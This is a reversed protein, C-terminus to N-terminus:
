IGSILEGLADLVRDIQKFSHAATVVMRFFGDEPGGPYFNYPVLIDRELLQQHIRENFKRDGLVFIAIPTPGDEFDIGLARLGSKMRATNKRLSSRLEPNKCVIDISAMAAGAFAPPLPTAGVYAPSGSRILQSIPADGAVFGGFCGFAKSLTGTQYVGEAEVGLYELTGKGTEGLVGVGHADDMMVAGGCSLAAERYEAMPALAGSSYVGDTCVVPKEGSACHQRLKAALDEASRHEFTVSPMASGTVADKVSCHAGADVLCIDYVGRLAQLVVLNISYGSCYSVVEERELFGALAEELAVHPAASGTTERSGASSIGWRILGEQATLIVDRNYSMGFYNTGGFYLVSRSDLEVTTKAASRLVINSM